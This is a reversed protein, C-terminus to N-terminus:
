ERESSSDQPGSVGSHECDTINLNTGCIACLGRCDKRCLLMGPVSLIIAERVADLISVEGENRSILETDLDTALEEDWTFIRYVEADVPFHAPELCRACQTEFEASLSGRCVWTM